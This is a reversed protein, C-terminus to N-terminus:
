DLRLLGEILSVDSAIVTHTNLRIYQLAYIEIVYNIIKSSALGSFSFELRGVMCENRSCKNRSIISHSPSPFWNIIMYKYQHVYLYETFYTILLNVNLSNLVITYRYYYLTFEVSLM